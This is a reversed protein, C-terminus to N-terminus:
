NKIAPRETNTSFVGPLLEACRLRVPLIDTEPIWKYPWRLRTSIETWGGVAAMFKDVAQNSYGKDRIYPIICDEM